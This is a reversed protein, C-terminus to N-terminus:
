KAPAPANTAPAANTDTASAVTLPAVFLPADARLSALYAVLAKAEPKPVIEYGEAPALGGKLDLAEPSRSGIIKRTEFLFRYPAMTSGPVESKPNYLHRLNWNADMRRVGVNSLDPGVRQTGLMVPSDYIFDEAVTRRLGWGRQIDPGSPVIALSAKAGGVTLLKVAADAQDRTVGKLVAESLKGLQEHAQSESWNTRVTLLAAIVVAQNTGPAALFVDCGVGTQTVQQSHCYACGNARYVQLGQRALGSRSAPYEASPPVTNTPQMRGVQMQPTLVFGFWSAALASFAGLFILPGHNM